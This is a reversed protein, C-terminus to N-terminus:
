LNPHIFSIYIIQTIKVIEWQNKKLRFINLDSLSYYEESLVRWWWKTQPENFPSLRTWCWQDATWWVIWILTPLRVSGVLCCSDAWWSSRIIVAILDIWEVEFEFTDGRCCILHMAILELNLTCLKQKIYQTSNPNPSSNFFEFPQERWANRNGYSNPQPKM